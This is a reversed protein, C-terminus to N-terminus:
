ATKLLSGKYTVHAKYTAVACSTLSQLVTRVARMSRPIHISSFLLSTRRGEREPSHFRLTMPSALCLSPM